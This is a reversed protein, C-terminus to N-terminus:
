RSTARKSTRRALLLLSRRLQSIEENVMGLDIDVNAQIVLLREAIRRADAALRISSPKSPSPYLQDIHRAQELKAISRSMLAANLHLRSALDTVQQECGDHLAAMVKLETFTINADVLYNRYLRHVALVGADIDVDESDARNTM